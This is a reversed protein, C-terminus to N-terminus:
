SIQIPSLPATTAAAAAPFNHPSLLSDWLILAPESLNEGGSLQQQVAARSQSVCAAAAAAEADRGADWRAVVSAIDDSMAGAPVYDVDYRLGRTITFSVVLTFMASM